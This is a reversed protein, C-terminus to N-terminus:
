KGPHRPDDVYEASNFKQIEAYAANAAGMSEAAWTEAWHHYDGPTVPQSNLSGPSIDSALTNVDTSILAPIKLDWLAHLEQSKTYYLQNGGRDQVATKPDEVDTLLVPEKLNSLDYFGTICHLPQHIDGVLHFVARMAQQKTM